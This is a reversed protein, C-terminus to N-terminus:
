DTRLTACMAVVRAAHAFTPALVATGPVEGANCDIEQQYTPLHHMKCAHWPFVQVLDHDNGAM